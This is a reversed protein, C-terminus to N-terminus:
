KSAWEGRVKHLRWSYYKMCVFFNTGNQHSGLGLLAVLRGCRGCSHVVLLVAQILVCRITIRLSLNSVASAGSPFAHLDLRYVSLFTVDERRRGGGAGVGGSGFGLPGNCTFLPLRDRLWSLGPRM